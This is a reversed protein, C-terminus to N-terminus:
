NSPIIHIEPFFKSDHKQQVAEPFKNANETTSIM